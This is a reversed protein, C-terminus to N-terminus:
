WHLQCRSKLSRYLLKLYHAPEQSSVAKCVAVAEEGFASACADEEGSEIDLAAFDGEIDLGIEIKDGQLTSIDDGEGERSYTQSLTFLILCSILIAVRFARM